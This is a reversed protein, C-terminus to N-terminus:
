EFFLSADGEVLELVAGYLDTHCVL